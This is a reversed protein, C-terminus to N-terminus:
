PYILRFFARGNAADIPIWIQNSATLGPVTVWDTGLGAGISNTQAELRWGTHDSPWNFRM